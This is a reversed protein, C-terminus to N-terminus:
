GDEEYVDETVGFNSYCSPVHKCTSRCCTGSLDNICPLFRGRFQGTPAVFICKPVHICRDAIGRACGNRSKNVEDREWVLHDFRICNAPTIHCLHSGQYEKGKPGNRLTCVLRGVTSQTKLLKPKAGPIIVDNADVKITQVTYPYLMAKIKKDGKARYEVATVAVNITSRGLKDSMGNYLVCSSGPDTVPSVQGAVRLAIRHWTLWNLVSSNLPECFNDVGVFRDVFDRIEQVWAWYVTRASPSLKEFEAQLTRDGICLNEWDHSQTEVSIYELSLKYSVVDSGLKVMNPEIFRIIREPSQIHDDTYAVTGQDGVTSSQWKARDPQVSNKESQTTTEISKASSNSSLVLTTSNLTPNSSGEGSNNLLTSFRLLTQRKPSRKKPSGSKRKGM